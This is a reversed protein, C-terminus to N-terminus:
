YFYFKNSFKLTCHILEACGAESLLSKIPVELAKARSFIHMFIGYRVLCSMLMKGWEEM